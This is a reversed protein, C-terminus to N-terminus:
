RRMSGGYYNVTVSIFAMEDGTEGSFRMKMLKFKAPWEYEREESAIRGGGFEDYITERGFGQRDGAVFDMTLAPNLLQSLDDREYGLDDDFYTDDTHAEGADDRNRYFNDIFMETTFRGRGKTDIKIQRSYKIADRISFDSWPWEWEFYIPLGGEEGEVVPTWGSGDLWTTDDDWTEQELIFDRYLPERKNGYLYVNSGRGFFVRGLVSRAGCRWNWGRFESWAEVKLQANKVFVFGRTEGTAAEVRDNPVFWMYQGEDRDLVAFSRNSLSTFDNISIQKQTEPDILASIRNPTIVGTFLTRRLTAVGVFDPFIIDDGVSLISNHSVTGYQQIPDSFEPIHTATEYTGLVGLIMADAFMVILKDRFSALGTIGLEGTELRSGLNVNVGDSGADGAWTGSSDRNSIYVTDGQAMVLYRGHTVVHRAVPVRVNSQTPVDVLYRMLMSNQPIILPKHVGDVIILDGNFETFTCYECDNWKGSAGLSRQRAIAEDWILSVVGNKDVRVVVGNSGVCILYGDYYDIGVIKHGLSTPIYADCDAFLKTGYRVQVTGDSGRFMNVLRKAFKPTLTLDNDIVNWGGTYDSFVRSQLVSKRRRNLPFADKM